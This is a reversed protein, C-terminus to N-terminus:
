VAPSREKRLRDLTAHRGLARAASELADRDRSDRPAYRGGRRWCSEVEELAEGRRGLAVLRGVLLDNLSDAFAAEGWSLARDRLWRYADPQRGSRDLWATAAAWADATRRVRILAFLEDAVEAHARAELRASHEADREPSRSPEFGLELRRAHVATGLATALSFLLLQAVAATPVPSLRRGLVVLLGLYAAGLAMIEVYRMGLGLVVRGIALPSIAHLVEGGIALLALSAPFAALALVCVALAAGDGWARGAAWALAGAALLLVFQLLPRPEHWPNTAEISLVPLAVGNATTQVLLYAYTWVWSLALLLLPLGILGARVALAFLSTTVAVLLLPPGAIARAAGHLTSGAAM